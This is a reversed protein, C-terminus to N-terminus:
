KVYYTHFLTMLQQNLWKKFELASIQTINRDDKPCHLKLFFHKQSKSVKLRNTPCFKSELFHFINFSISNAGKKWKAANRIKESRFKTLVSYVAASNKLFELRFELWFEAWLIVKLALWKRSMILVGALFSQSLFMRVTQWDKLSRFYPYKWIWVKYLWSITQNISIVLDM